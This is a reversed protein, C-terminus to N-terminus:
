RETRCLQQVKQPLQRCMQQFAPSNSQWGAFFGLSLGGVLLALLGGLLVWQKQKRQSKLTQTPTTVDTATIDLELLAQSSQALETQEEPEVQQIEVLPLTRTM